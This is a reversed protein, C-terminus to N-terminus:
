AHMPLGTVPPYSGAWAAPLGSGGGCLDSEEVRMIPDGEVACQPESTDCTVTCTPEHPQTSATSEAAQKPKEVKKTEGPKVPKGHKDAATQALQEASYAVAKKEGGAPPPGAPQGQVLGGLPGSRVHLASLRRPGVTLTSM